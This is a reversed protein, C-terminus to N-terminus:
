SRDIRVRLPPDFTDDATTQMDQLEPATTGLDAVAFVAIPTGTPVPADALAIVFEGPANAIWGVSGRALGATSAPLVARPPPLEACAGIRGRVLSNLRQQLEGGCGKKAATRWFVDSSEDRANSLFRLRVDRQWVRVDGDEDIAAELALTVEDIAGSVTAMGNGSAVTTVAAVAASADHPPDAQLIEAHAPERVASMLYGASFFLFFLTLMVILIRRTGGTTLSSAAGSRKMSSMTTM